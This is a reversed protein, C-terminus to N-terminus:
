DGGVKQLYSHHLINTCNFWATQGVASLPRRRSSPVDTHTFLCRIYVEHSFRYASDM